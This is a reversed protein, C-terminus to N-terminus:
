SCKYVFKQPSMHKRKEQYVGLLPTAPDHSLEIKVMEPVELPHLM